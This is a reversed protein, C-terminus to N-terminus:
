KYGQIHVVVGNITIKGFDVVPSLGVYRGTRRIKSAPAKTVAACFADAIHSATSIASAGGSYAAIIAAITEATPVASCIAVADAQAASLVAPDLTGNCGALALSVGGSILLRSVLNM